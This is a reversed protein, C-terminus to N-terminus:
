RAVERAGARALVDELARAHRDATFALSREWAAARLRQHHAADGVCRVVADALSRVSGARALEGTVGPVLWERVGGTDFAVAPTGVSAAELGVLGFPEPWLSPVVLADAGALLARRREGDVWGLLEVDRHRRALRAVRAREPGDGGVLLRPRAGLARAALEVARIAASAGKLATLRGLFALRGTRERPAPPSPAPAIGTPWLPDLVTAGAAAGNRVLEERMHASAVVVARYRPLLARRRAQRRYEAALALPSRAGCGRAYNLALCASSLARTCARRSPFRWVKEGTACTGYYGHAFLVAPHADVLRRELEPDLLGNVLVVDPRWRAVEALAAAAGLEGVCWRALAAGGDVPAAAAAVEHLLAVAHGRARLAPIVDGVYSEAGGVPTAFVNAVVIRM